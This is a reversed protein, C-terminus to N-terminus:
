RYTLTSFQLSESLAMPILWALNGLIPLRRVDSVPTVLVPEAEMTKAKYVADDFTVFVHVKWGTGAMIAFQTWDSIFLGAEELFERRMAEIPSEDLEIKGGLGNYKGAQDEPKNKRILALDNGNASFCFGLVYIVDQTKGHTNDM